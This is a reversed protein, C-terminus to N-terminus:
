GEMSFVTKPNEVTMCDLWAKGGPVAELGFFDFSSYAGSKAIHDIYEPETLKDVDPKAIDPPLTVGQCTSTGRIIQM